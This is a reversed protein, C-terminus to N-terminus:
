LQEPKGRRAGVGGVRKADVRNAVASSPQALRLELGRRRLQSQSQALHGRNRPEALARKFLGVEIQEEGVRSRRNGLNEAYRQARYQDGFPAHAAPQRHAGAGPPPWPRDPPQDRRAPVVAVAGM